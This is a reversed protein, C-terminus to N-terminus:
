KGEKMGAKLTALEALQKQYTRTYACLERVEDRVLANILGREAQWKILDILETVLLNLRGAEEEVLRIEEERQRTFAYAAYDNLFVYHKGAFYTILVTGRAYYQYGGDCVHVREWREEVYQRKQQPTLEETKSEM